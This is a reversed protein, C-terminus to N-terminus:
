IYIYIHYAHIHPSLNSIFLRGQVSMEGLLFTCLMTNKGKKQLPPVM